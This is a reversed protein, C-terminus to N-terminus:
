AALGAIAQEALQRQRPLCVRALDFGEVVTRRAQEGLQRAAPRDALAQAVQAAIDQPSFFDALLGNKGHVLVEEVPTTRSGIVTAGASMAELLSWSLV